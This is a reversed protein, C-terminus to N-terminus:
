SKEFGYFFERYIDNINKTLESCEAWYCPKGKGGFDRLPRSLLKKSLIYGNFDVNSSLDPNVSFFSFAHIKDCFNSIAKEANLTYGPIKAPNLFLKGNEYCTSKVDFHIDGIYARNKYVRHVFDGKDDRTSHPESLLSEYPYIDHISAHALEGAIGVRENFLERTDADRHMNQYGKARSIGNRYSALNKILSIEIQTLSFQTLNKRGASDLAENFYKNYLKCSSFYSEYGPCHEILWQEMPVFYMTELSMKTIQHVLMM